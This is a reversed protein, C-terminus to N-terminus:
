ANSEGQGRCASAHVGVWQGLSGPQLEVKLNGKSLAQPPMLHM